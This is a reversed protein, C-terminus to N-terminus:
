RLVGRRWAVLAATEAEDPSAGDETLALALARVEDEAGAIRAIRRQYEREAAAAHKCPAGEDRRTFQGAECTCTWGAGAARRTLHYMLGERSASPVDQQTPLRRVLAPVVDRLQAPSMESFRGCRGTARLDDEDVGQQAAWATAKARASPAEDTATAPEVEAELVPATPPRPRPRPPSVDAPSTYAGRIEDGEDEVYAGAVVDPYVRRILRSKARAELMAEPHAAWTGKGALGARRAMDMTYSARDPAPHGRRQTEYTCIAETSEVCRLYECLPSCMVLRAMMAAPMILVGKVVRLGMIAQMPPIGLEMGISARIAADGVSVDLQAMTATPGLGALLSSARALNDLGDHPVVVAPLQDTV